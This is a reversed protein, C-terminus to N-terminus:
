LIKKENHGNFNENSYEIAEVAYLFFAEITWPLPIKQLNNIDKGSEYRAVLRSYKNCIRVKEAFSFRKLLLPIREIQSYQNHPDLSHM